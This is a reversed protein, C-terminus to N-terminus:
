QNFFEIYCRITFQTKCWRAGSSRRGSSTRATGGYHGFRKVVSGPREKRRESIWLNAANDARMQADGACGRVGKYSGSVQQEILTTNDPVATVAKHANIRPGVYKDTSIADSYQPIFYKLTEFSYTSNVGLILAILATVHPAAMSTGSLAVSSQSNNRLSLISVGPASVRVSKGWNSFSARRDSSDTAGVAIVKLHNAPAYNVIDGNENGAAFVIIAGKAYAYEIISAVTPNSPRVKTPGWSCNIVRAGNDVAYKIGAACRSDYANPFVKVAMIKCEPAVGAVEINNNMIAAITGAVHTGHGDNDIPNSTNNSFDYGYKGASDKWMNAAIDNHRYDVGTDVVAVTVSNGKSRLWAPECNIKSLAWQQPFKPDNPSLSLENLEDYQVYKVELRVKLAELFNDAEVQTKCDIKFLHYIDKDSEPLAPYIHKEFLVDDDKIAISNDTNNARFDKVMKDIPFLRTVFEKNLLPQNQLVDDITFEEQICILLNPEM